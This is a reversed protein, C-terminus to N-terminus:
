DIESLATQIQKPSVPLSASLAGFLEQNYLLVQFENKGLFDKAVNQSIYYGSKDVTSSFGRIVIMNESEMDFSQILNLQEIYKKNEPTSALLIMIRPRVKVGNCRVFDKSLADVSYHCDSSDYFVLSRPLQSTSSCGLLLLVYLFIIVIKM